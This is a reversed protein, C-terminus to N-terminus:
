NAILKAETNLQIPISKMWMLITDANNCSTDTVKVPIGFEPTTKQTEWSFAFTSNLSQVTFQDLEQQTQQAFRQFDHGILLRHLCVDHVGQFGHRVIVHISNLNADGLSTVFSNLFIKWIYKYHCLNELKWPLEM